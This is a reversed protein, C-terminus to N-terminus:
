TVLPHMCALWHRAVYGTVDGIWIETLAFKHDTDHINHDYRRVFKLAFNLLDM